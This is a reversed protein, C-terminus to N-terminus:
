LPSGTEQLMQTKHGLVDTTLSPRKNSMSGSISGFRPQKIREVLASTFQIASKEGKECRETSADLFLTRKKLRHEVACSNNSM